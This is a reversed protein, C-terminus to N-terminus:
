RARTTGPTSARAGPSERNIVTGIPGRGWGSSPWSQHATSPEAGPSREAWLVRVRTSRPRRASRTCTAIALPRGWWIRMWQAAMPAGKTPSGRSPGAALWEWAGQGAVPSGGGPRAGRTPAAQPRDTPAPPVGATPTPRWRGWQHARHVPSFGALGCALPWHGHAAAPDPWPPNAWGDIWRALGILQGLQDAVAWVARHFSQRTGPVRSPSAIM